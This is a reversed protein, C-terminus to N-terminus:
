GPGYLGEIIEITKHKENLDKTLWLYSFVCVHNPAKIKTQLSALKGVGNVASEM